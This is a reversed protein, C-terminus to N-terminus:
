NVLRYGIYSETIIIQPNAPDDEIKKRLQSIYVRLSQTENEFGYGWVKQLIYRHTLVKGINNALLALLSYEKATLKLIEDNKKVTRAVFDIEIDQANFIKPTEEDPKRHRLANRLRALLEGMSFPKTVYDDAGWDLATIIDSETNRVSLIIVPYKYWERLKKLVNLGDEDPLGLDLIIADPQDMAAKTIGENGTAAEDVKFNNAELGIRLIKRIQAEDDIILIKPDM